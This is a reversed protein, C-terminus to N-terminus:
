ATIQYIVNGKPVSLGKMDLCILDVNDLVSESAHSIMICNEIGLIDIIIFLLEIFMAKNKQDLTGDIEDLRLINYLTSSQQLLAASIILAMMAREGGSCSNIDDNILNSESSTCPIRFEDENIKYELLKLKGDFFMSLLKNALNLTQGMYVKIFMNQIGAKTPSSYKKIVEITNYKATFAALEHYVQPIPM